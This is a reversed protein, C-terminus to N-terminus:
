FFYLFIWKLLYILFPVIKNQFKLSISQIQFNGNCLYTNLHFINFTSTIGNTTCNIIIPTGRIITIETMFCNEVTIKSIHEDLIFADNNLFISNQLYLMNQCSNCILGFSQGYKNCNIVNLFKLYILSITSVSSGINFVMCSQIEIFSSFYLHVTNSGHSGIGGQHLGIYNKTFNSNTCYFHGYTLMNTYYNSYFQHNCLLTSTFNYENQNNLNSILSSSIFQCSSAAFCKYGCLKSYYCNYLNLTYIAGGHSNSNCEIFTSDFVSLNCSSTLSIAGGNSTSILNFFLCYQIFLKGNLINSNDIRNM